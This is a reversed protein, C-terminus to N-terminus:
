RHGVQSLNRCMGWRSSLLRGPPFYDVISHSVSFCLYESAFIPVDDHIYANFCHTADVIAANHKRDVKDDDDNKAVTLQGSVNVLLVLNGKTSLKMENNHMLTLQM